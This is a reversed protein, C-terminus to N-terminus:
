ESKIIPKSPMLKCKQFGAKTMPDSRPITCWMEADNDPKEGINHMMDIAPIPLM